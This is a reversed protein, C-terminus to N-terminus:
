RSLPSCITCTGQSIGRLLIPRLESKLGNEKNEIDKILSNLETAKQKIVSNALVDRCFKEVQQVLKDDGRAITNEGQSHKIVLLVLTHPRSIQSFQPEYSHIACGYLSSILLQRYIGPGYDKTDQALYPEVEKFQAQTLQDTIDKSISDCRYIIGVISNRWGTLQADFKPLEAKIHQKLCNWVYSDREVSLVVTGDDWTMSEIDGYKYPFRTGSKLTMMYLNELDPTRMENCFQNALSHLKDHFDRVKEVLQANRGADVKKWLRCYAPIPVIISSVIAITVWSWVPIDGFPHGTHASYIAIAGFIVTIIGM